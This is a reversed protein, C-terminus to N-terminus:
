FYSPIPLGEVSERTFYSLFYDENISLLNASSGTASILSNFIATSGTAGGLPLAPFYLDNDFYSYSNVKDDFSMYPPYKQLYYWEHTFFKTNKSFEDFSPSFNNFGFSQDTNLRYGNERVDVSENDYVWKNIFPVVRSSLAIQALTNERLRSYENVVEDVEDTFEDTYGILKQFEGNVM